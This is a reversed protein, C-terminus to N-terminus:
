NNIWSNLFPDVDSLKTKRHSDQNSIEQKLQKRLVDSYNNESYKKLLRDVTTKFQMAHYVGIPFKKVKEIANIYEKRASYPVSKESFIVPSEIISVSINKSYQKMWNVTDHIKHTTLNSAVVNFQFFNAHESAFQVNNEFQKWELPYRVYTGLNEIADCSCVISLNKFKGILVKWKESIKKLNTNIIVECEKNEAYLEELFKFYEPIFTPEGGAFYIKKLKKKPVTEFYKLNYQNKNFVVNKEKQWLTSFKPGCTKCKLNCTPDFRVDMYQVEPRNIDPEGYKKIWEMTEKIRVSYGGEDESNYCYSCEDPRVGNIMKQRLENIDDTDKSLCCPTSKGTDKMALYKQIWPLVCIAKNKSTDFSSMLM